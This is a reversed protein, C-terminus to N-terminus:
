ETEKGFCVPFVTLTNYQVTVTKLLRQFLINHYM